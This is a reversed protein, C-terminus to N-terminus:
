GPRWKRRARVEVVVETWAGGRGHHKIVVVPDLRQRSDDLDLTLPEPGWSLMSAQTRQARAPTSVKLPPPACTATMFM